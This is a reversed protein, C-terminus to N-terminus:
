GARAHKERQELCLDSFVQVIARLVCGVERHALRLCHAAAGRIHSGRWRIPVTAVADSDAHSDPLLVCNSSIM